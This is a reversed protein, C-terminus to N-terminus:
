QLQTLDIERVSKHLRGHTRGYNLSIDSYHIKGDIDGPKSPQFVFGCERAGDLVWKLAINSLRYDEFGGGIDSHTGKFWEEEIGERPNMLAPQFSKRNEHIAVAHRARLVDPSVDFNKFLNVKNFPYGFSAVTDFCGLYEIEIDNNGYDPSRIGDEYIKQALMRAVAAGRSFGLLMVRDGPRWVKGLKKYAKNRLRDAGWGFTGGLFKDLWNGTGVGPYYLTRGTHLRAAKRVNTPYDDTPDNWTGDIAILINM